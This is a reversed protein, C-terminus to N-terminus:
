FGFIICLFVASDYNILFLGGFFVVWGGIVVGGGFVGCGVVCVGGVWGGWVFFCGCVGWVFCGGGVG